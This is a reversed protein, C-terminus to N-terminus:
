PVRARLTRLSIAAAQAVATDSDKTLQELVPATAADGSRSLLGALRVKEDRTRQPLGPYLAERVPAERTLEELYGSAVGHYASSNLTNLLYSLPSLETVERRGLMTAAFAMALRPKMKSEQEFAQSLRDRDAADKLRAFGEAASARMDDDRDGLYTEFLGRSGPDPMMAIAALAASRVRDSRARSLAERLGPLGEKNQLLGTTEIATVQVRENLDQLLFAIGPAAKPDRIKQLAILSEYLLTSDKSRTAEVLAPVAPRARLV